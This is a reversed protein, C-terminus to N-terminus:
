ESDSRRKIFSRQTLTSSGVEYRSHNLASISRGSGSPVTAKYIPVLNIAPLTISNKLPPKIPIVTATKVRVINERGNLKKAFDDNIHMYEHDDKISPMKMHRASLTVPQERIDCLDSLRRNPINEDIARRAIENNLPRALLRNNPNHCLPTTNVANHVRSVNYKGNNNYIKAQRNLVPGSTIRLYQEVDRELLANFDNQTQREHRTPSTAEISRYSTQSRASKSKLQPIPHIEFMEEVNPDSSVAMADFYIAAQEGIIRLHPFRNTWEIIENRLKEDNGPLEEEGYFMREIREWEEQNQKIVDEAWPISNVSSGDFSSTPSSFWNDEYTDDSDPSFSIGPIKLKSM